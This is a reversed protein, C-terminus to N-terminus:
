RAIIGEKGEKVQNTVETHVEAAERLIPNMLSPLTRDQLCIKLLLLSKNKEM